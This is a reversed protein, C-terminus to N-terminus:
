RVLERRQQAPQGLVIKRRGAKKPAGPSGGESIEKKVDDDDDVPSGNSLGESFM